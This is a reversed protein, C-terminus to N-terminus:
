PKGGAPTPALKDVAIKASRAQLRQAIVRRAYATEDKMAVSSPYTIGYRVEPWEAIVIDALELARESPQPDAIINM